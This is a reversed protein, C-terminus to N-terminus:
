QVFFNAMIYVNGTSNPKVSAIATASASFKWPPDFNIVAGGGASAVFALVCSPSASTGLRALTSVTGANTIVLQTIYITPTAGTLQPAAILVVAASTSVTITVPGHSASPVGLIPTNALVVNVTASINNIFGINATGAALSVAGMLATGAAVSVAGINATGAALVVAASINNITGINATGAALVTSLTASINNIFGINATGAALSVAGMLATGAANSVAGINNTSAGLILRGSTDLLLTRMIGGAGGASDNGGILVPKNTTSLSAGNAIEGAIIVTASINNLFGINATGAALSVAGMLATGAANSVAGILNTGAALVVAASINNVVGINAPLTVSVAASINNITGINNSGAALVVAASINNVTGINAPLTVSVAASINNITGINAAGAALVVSATGSIAEVKVSLPNTPTGGAVAGGSAPLAIGFIPLTQVQDASALTNFDATAGTAVQVSASINNIFGINATGAALSVAGILASGAGLSVTGAVVVTASINNIFGINSTGAAISVPNAGAGAGAVINVRLALNASDVLNRSQGSGDLFASIVAVTNVTTSIGQLIFPTGIAVQVTRSINNIDGIVNTGAALSVAGSVVVTASIANIYGINAAGAALVVPASINNIFGINATGAALSVAGMLATGAANSVAGINATGAALVVAASINNVTFPTGVVVTVTASIGNLTGINAAGAALVVAPMASVNINGTVTLAGGTVTAFQATASNDGIVIRQRMVTNAGVDLSAADVKKGTSDPPVQVIGDAM